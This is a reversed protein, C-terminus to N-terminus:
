ASRRNMFRRELREKRREIPVHVNMMRREEFRRDDGRKNYGVRIMLIPIIYVVVLVALALYWYNMEM